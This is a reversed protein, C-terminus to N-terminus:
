NEHKRLFYAFALSFLPKGLCAGVDQPDEYTGDACIGLAGHLMIALLLGVLYVKLNTRM